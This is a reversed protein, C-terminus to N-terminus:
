GPGLARVALVWESVSRCAKQSGFLGTRRGKRPKAVAGQKNEGFYIPQAYQAPLLGKFDTTIM